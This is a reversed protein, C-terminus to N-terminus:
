SRSRDSTRAPRVAGGSDRDGADRGAHTGTRPAAPKRALCLLSSGIASDFRRLWLSEVFLLLSLFANIPALPVAIEQQADSESSLGRWRHLARVALMPAFLVQNTHTIRVVEFGADTVLTRLTMRTYRRVEHSLVSHDGRLIPMAAVNILAFGGPRTLRYMEVVAAREAADPLSYLVDFSTVLDFTESSFPAATVSARVLRIRGSERGIYLGVESLDFGYTVGYRGLLELNAGTGCGCDLIRANPHRDIAHRILPTVFWRFGRYWFHRSEARATARLLRDVARM